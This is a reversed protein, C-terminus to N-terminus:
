SGRYPAVVPKQVVSINISATYLLRLALFHSLAKAFTKFDERCAFVVLSESGAPEPDDIARPLMLAAAVLIVWRVRM